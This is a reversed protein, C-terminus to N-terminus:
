RGNATDHTSPMAPLHVHFVPTLLCFSKCSHELQFIASLDHSTDIQQKITPPRAVVEGDAHSSPGPCTKYREYVLPGAALCLVLSKHVGFVCPFHLGFPESGESRRDTGGGTLAPLTCFTDPVM